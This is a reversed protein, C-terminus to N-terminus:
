SDSHNREAFQLYLELTENLRDASFQIFGSTNGTTHAKDLFEYYDLRHEKKIVIPPFGYKMLEFNQLLRATRGNGDVFPHIKVFESHLLAAREAAHLNKWENEYHTILEQMQDPVVTYDPPTHDAGSIVVNEKRYVGAHTPEINKLVIAHINKIQWESLEEGGQVIEELYLIAENHNIAELHEVVSKGGITIGELVVKTEKLTLTNGEIANSNYTWELSIKERLSMLTHPSLPRLADLRSKKQDIVTWDFM